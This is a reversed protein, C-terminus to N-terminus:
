VIEDLILKRPAAPTDSFVTAGLLITEAEDLREESAAYLTALVDGARVTDGTKFQPVNEVAKKQEQSLEEVAKAFKM